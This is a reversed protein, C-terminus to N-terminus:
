RAPNLTMLLRVAVGRRHEGLLEVCAVEGVYECNRSDPSATYPLTVFVRMGKYYADRWTTFYFGDPSASLTVRVEDFHPVEPNSPRVRVPRSIKVRRRRRPEEAFAEM